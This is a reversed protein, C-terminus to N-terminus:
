YESKERQQTYILKLGTTPTIMEWRHLTLKLNRVATLNIGNKTSGISGIEWIGYGKVPCSGTMQRLIVQQKNESKYNDPQIMLESM